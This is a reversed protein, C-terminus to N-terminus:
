ELVPVTATYYDPFVLQMHMILAETDDVGPHMVIWDMQEEVVQRFAPGKPIDNLIKKMDDGDLLPKTTEWSGILGLRLLAAAFIDYREIIGRRIEEQTEDVVDGEIAYELYSSSSDDQGSSTSRMRSTAHNLEESLSLILAARWLPGIKQLMKFCTLRFEMAHIWVPDDEVTPDVRRGNLFPYLAVKISAGEHDAPELEQRVNLDSLLIMTASVVSGSQMLETIEDAATLIKAIADADRAPRKLDDLLLQHVASQHKRKKKAKGRADAEDNSNSHYKQFNWLPKLFASYWLLRRGEEDELLPLGGVLAAAETVLAAQGNRNSGSPSMNLSCWLPPSFKCDALHDHATSLLALGEVGTPMQPFVTDMLQLQWLLRMAGVPDRSRFMLEVESGVRERSVKNALANRVRADKAAEVLSDAMTFRLRAAFRVSRLVRLPDDLLTTLPPLPTAVIGKRLDEFGQGTWDEVQGTNINYFLSNITLDRRYADESATGIRMMDPIRSNEQTYEEARLNVFDIWFGGVKMTATELHKSKEPNKLVVGVSHTEEGQSSLYDNLHEAFEQGLMDDLAIDIDVPKHSPGNAAMLPNSPPSSSSTAGPRRRLFKSTLRQTKTPAGSGSPADLSAAYLPPCFEPTALLKDRVWGGAVRLTTSLNTEKRVRRLLAFLNREEDTLKIVDGYGETVPRSRTVTTTVATISSTAAVPERQFDFEQRGHVPPGTSNEVHDEHPPTSSCSLSRFITNTTVMNPSLRFADGFTSAAHAAMTATAMSRGCDGGNTNWFRTNSSSGELVLHHRVSRAREQEASPSTTDAHSPQPFLWDSSSDQHYSSTTRTVHAPGQRDVLASTTWTATTSVSAAITCAGGGGLFRLERSCTAMRLPGLVEDGGGGGGGRRHRRPSSLLSLMSSSCSKCSELARGHGQWTSRLSYLSHAIPRMALDTNGFASVLCGRSSRSPAARPLVVLM